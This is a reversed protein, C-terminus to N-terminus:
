FVSTNDCSPLAPKTPRRNHEATATRNSTSEAQDAVDVTAVSDEDAVAPHEEVVEASNVTPGTAVVGVDEESVEVSDAGSAVESVEVVVEASIVEVADEVSSEEVEDVASDVDELHVVADAAM